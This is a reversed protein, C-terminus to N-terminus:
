ACTSFPLHFVQIAQKCPVSSGQSMHSAFLSWKHKHACCMIIVLPLQTAFSMHVDHPKLNDNAMASFSQRFEHGLYLNPLHRSHVPADSIKTLQAYLISTFFAGLSHKSWTSNVDLVNVLSNHYIQGM